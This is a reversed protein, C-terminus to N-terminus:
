EWLPNISFIKVHPKTSFVLNIFKYVFLKVKKLLNNKKLRFVKCKCQRIILKNIFFIDQLKITQILVQFKHKHNSLKM